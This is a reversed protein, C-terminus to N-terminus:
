FAWSRGRSVLSSRRVDGERELSTSILEAPVNGQEDRLLRERLIRPFIDKYAWERSHWYESRRLWQAPQARIKPKNLRSTDRCFSNQGFGPNVKLV